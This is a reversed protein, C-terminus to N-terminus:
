KSDADSSKTSRWSAHIRQLRELDHPREAALDKSEGPDASLDYLSFTDKKAYLKLDGTRVARQDGSEWCLQAHPSPASADMLLPSINRGDLRREPLPIGCLDALTPLWDCSWAVQERVEGAPVHGPWRIVAPVRVGGELLDFKAGRLVGASGGGKHARTETSHGHDSQFVVITDDALQLRDLSELLEGMRADLTSLFAAYLNRPYSLESYHALWEPDGQYPYHPMNFAMYLFFPRARNKEMFQTAERVMLDGFFLGPEHVEVGDRYLDHRNPGNWYFFHSYNDICGGLHGYAQDFGQANPQHDADSGLHWKGVLGTAYGASRFMEALTFQEPPLGHGPAPSVNGPVGARHPNRGTLLAARSPSCVPAAAYFQTFRVGEAVLREMAPLTLDRAGYSPLDASGQDDTLIVIVNPRRSSQAPNSEAQVAQAPLALFTIGVLLLPMRMPSM